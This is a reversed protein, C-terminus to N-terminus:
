RAGAHNAEICGGVDNEHRAAVHADAAVAQWAKPSRFGRAWDTTLAVGIDHTRFKSPARTPLCSNRSAAALCAFLNRHLSLSAGPNRPTAHLTPQPGVINAANTAARTRLAATHM